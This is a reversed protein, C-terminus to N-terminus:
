QFLHDLSGSNIQQRLEAIARLVNQRYHINDFSDPHKVSLTEEQDLCTLLTEKSRANTECRSYIEHYALDADHMSQFSSLHFLESYRVMKYKGMDYGSRLKSFYEAAKEPNKSM